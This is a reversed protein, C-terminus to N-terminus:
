AAKGMVATARRELKGWGVRYGRIATAVSKVVVYYMLQRYGFRQIPLWVLDRWPARRELAMGIAAASLDLFIFAAWYFVTRIFDDPSWEVPHYARAYIAWGLSSVIALDVLPSAVTLIIQFLWIQPLAVFGLVPRRPNFLAGRHKWLCQLTGFSWRFRQNLLGSVTDPAETYARAEPDFEVRWGASQFALTLDQDEALTDAPYGGLETLASRRWAGVAGPVVTVAGLAALARRELNQATVYELGQWRTILNLRNGVLANGAVAGM